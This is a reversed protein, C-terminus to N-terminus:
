FPLIERIQGNNRKNWAYNYTALLKNEENEAVEERPHWIRRVPNWMRGVVKVRVQLEYGRRLADNILDDKHSGNTCYELIRHM